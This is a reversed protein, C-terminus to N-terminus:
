GRSCKHTRPLWRVELTRIESKWHIPPRLILLGFGLLPSCPPPPLTNGEAESRSDGVEGQVNAEFPIVVELHM